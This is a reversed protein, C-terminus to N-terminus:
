LRCWCSQGQHELVRRLARKRSLHRSAVEGAAAAQLWGRGARMTLVWELAPPWIRIQQMPALQSLKGFFLVFYLLRCVDASLISLRGQRKTKCPVGRALGFGTPNLEAVSGFSLKSLHRALDEESIFGGGKVLSLSLMQAEPGSAELRGCFLFLQMSMGSFM